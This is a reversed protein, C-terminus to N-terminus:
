SGSHPCELLDVVGVDVDGHVLLFLAFTTSQFEGVTDAQDGRLIRFKGLVEHILQDDRQVPRHATRKPFVQVSGGAPDCLPCQGLAPM